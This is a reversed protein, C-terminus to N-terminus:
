YIVKRGGTFFYQKIDDIPTDEIKHKIVKRECWEDGNSDVLPTIFSEHYDRCILLSDYFYNINDEDFTPVHLKIQSAFYKKNFWRKSHYSIVNKVFTYFRQMDLPHLSEPYHSLWIVFSEETPNKHVIGMIKEKKNM